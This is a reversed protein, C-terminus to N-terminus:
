LIQGTKFYVYLPIAIMTLLILGIIIWGLTKM